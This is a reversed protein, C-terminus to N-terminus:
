QLKTWQAGPFSASVPPTAAVVYLSRRNQAEDVNDATPVALVKEGFGQYYIHGDFGQAQFWVAISKARSTSLRLNSAADGVTDTYGAVYLNVM